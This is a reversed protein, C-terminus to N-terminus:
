ANDLMLEVASGQSLGEQGFAGPIEPRQRMVSHPTHLARAPRIGRGAESDGLYKGVKVALFFISPM